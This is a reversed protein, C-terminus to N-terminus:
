AAGNMGATRIVPGMNSDPCPRYGGIRGGVAGETSESRRLAQKRKLPVHIADRPHRLKCRELDSASIEQLWPLGRGGLLAYAFRDIQVPKKIPRQFERAIVGLFLAERLLIVDPRPLPSHANCSKQM